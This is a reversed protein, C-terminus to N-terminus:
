KRGILEAKCPDLGAPGMKVRRMVYLDLASEPLIRTGPNNFILPHLTTKKRNRAGARVRLAGDM